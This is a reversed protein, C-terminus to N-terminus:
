ETYYFIKNCLDRPSLVTIEPGPPGFLAKLDDFTAQCMRRSRPSKNIGPM